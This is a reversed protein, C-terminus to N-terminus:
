GFYYTLSAEQMEEDYSFNELEKFSYFTEGFFALDNIKRYIAAKETSNELIDLDLYKIQNIVEYCKRIYVKIEPLTCFEPLGNTEHRTNYFLEGNVFKQYTNKDCLVLSHSSSSNTEFVNARIQKM